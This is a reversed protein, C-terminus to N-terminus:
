SAEARKAALREIDRRRFLMAGNKGPLRHAPIINGATVWRSLTAKDISLIRCSETSGILDSQCPM